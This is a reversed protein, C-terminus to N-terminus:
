PCARQISRTSPPVVRLVSAVSSTGTSIDCQGTQESVRQVAPAWHAVGCDADKNEHYTAESMRVRARGIVGPGPSRLNQGQGPNAGRGVM